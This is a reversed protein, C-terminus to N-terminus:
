SKYLIPCLNKYTWSVLPLALFLSPVKIIERVFWSFCNIGWIGVLDNELNTKVLFCNWEFNRENKENTHSGRWLVLVVWDTEITITQHLRFSVCFLVRFM